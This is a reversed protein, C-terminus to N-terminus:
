GFQELLRLDNEWLWRIDPIAHRLAAIREVGMGWAYGTLREADYGEVYSYLAPDVMGAGLIEVWGEGRCVRCPSGDRACNFCSIDVEVSPETFPFFHPRLRVERDAGFVERAFALLTGKLHALSLGEDVALGEIQTFMATHTADPTDRRYCRGMTAMYVPPPQTQMTRVQMPSTHTRLVTHEDIYYTDTWQRTPHTPAHNLADFNRFVTDVEPGDEVTYGLGVLVDLIERGTQEILHAFGREVRIGPLTVDTRDSRLRQELEAADLEAARGTLAAELAQRVENLVKGRPGREEAPLSGVERLAAVLPAKRGLLEIRVQELAATDAAAAIAALGDRQLAEPDM